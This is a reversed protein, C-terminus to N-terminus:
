VEQSKDIGRSLRGNVWSRFLSYIVSVLPIFVLMGLVGMLSAGISVAVLVWIAPLGVSNGVVLPYIFNGEIQQIIFFIIVFALAQIPNIMLILFTGIACGIFAGFIPILATFAILVGVLLAYPFQFVTMVIFFMTGLIVAETCQGAVYNAFTRYTLAGIECITDVYKKKFCAQLVKKVQGRLKEKQLLIYCAFVFAIFFNAMGSLISKAVLVTSSLVSGAGSKLFEVVSDIMKEWNFEISNIWAVVDSNDKFIGAMWSQIEPIFNQISTGLGVVTNGLEPVVIFVVLAIIGIIFLIALILSVPRAAKNKKKFLHKEVFSMPLNLIFALAGGLVFPILTNGIFSLVGLVAKYNWLLAFLILTYTILWMIKKTNIKNFEM